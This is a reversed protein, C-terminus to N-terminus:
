FAPKVSIDKPESMMSRLAEKNEDAMGRALERVHEAIAPHSLEARDCLLEIGSNFGHVYALNKDSDHSQVMKRMAWKQNLTYEHNPFEEVPSM